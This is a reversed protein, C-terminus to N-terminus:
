KKWAEVKWPNNPDNLNNGYEIFGGEINKFDLTNIKVLISPQYNADNEKYYEFIVEYNNNIKRLNFNAGVYSNQGYKKKM